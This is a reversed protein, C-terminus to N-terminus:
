QGCAGAIRGSSARATQMALRGRPLAAKVVIASFEFNGGRDHLGAKGGRRRVRRHDGAIGAGIHDRQPRRLRPEADPEFDLRVGAVRQGVEADDRLLAGPRDPLLRSVDREIDVADVLDLAHGPMVDDGKERMEGLEDAGVRAEHVLAHGGRVHEVGAEGHLQLAGAVDQDGVDVRQEGRQLPAGILVPQRRRDAARMADVGLRGGEAQLEGLGVRFERAGAAPQDGRARFDRGARNGARDAREGIDIRADLFVDRALHAQGRLRDRRLHDRAVTVGRKKRREAHHRRRDLPEGDFNAMQLAGLHQLGLFPEGLALLAGRRHRVLAIRHEGFVEGTERAHHARRHRRRHLIDRQPVLAVDGMGRDLPHDAGIRRDRQIERQGTQGADDVLQHDIGLRHASIEVTEAAEDMRLPHKERQGLLANRALRGIIQDLAVRHGRPAVLLIEEVQQLRVLVHRRRQRRAFQRRQEVKVIVQLM